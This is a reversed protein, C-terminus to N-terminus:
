VSRILEGLVIPLYKYIGRMERRLSKYYRCYQIIIMYKHLHRKKLGVHQDFVFQSPNKCVM